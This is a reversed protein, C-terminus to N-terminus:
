VCTKEKVYFVHTYIFDNRHEAASSINGTRINMCWRFKSDGVIARYGNLWMVDCTLFSELGGDFFIPPVDDLLARPVGRKINFLVLNDRTFINVDLPLSNKVILEEERAKLDLLCITDGIFDRLSTVAGERSPSKSYVILRDHIM